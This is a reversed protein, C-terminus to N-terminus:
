KKGKFWELVAKFCKYASDYTCELGPGHGGATDGAFFLGDIDESINSPKFRGTLGVRKSTGLVMNGSGQLEWEKFEKLRPFLENMEEILERINEKTAKRDKIEEPTSVLGYFMYHKGPPSVDKVLASPVSLYRPRKGPQFVIAGWCRPNWPFDELLEERFSYFTGLAISQKNKLNHIKAVFKESFNEESIYSFIYQIPFTIIISKAKLEYEVNNGTEDKYHAKIGKIHKDEILIENVRHGHIIEGGNEKCIVALIESLSQIGGKKPYTIPRKSSFLRSFSRVFEGASGLEPLITIMGNIATLLPYFQDTPSFQKIFEIVSVDDLSNADEDTANRLYDLLKILENNPAWNDNAEKFGENSFDDIEITIKKEVDYFALLPKYDILDLTFGLEREIKKLTGLDYYAIGHVGTDIKYEKRVTLSAARGGLYERKELLLVNLGKKSLLAACATGAAGGGVIVIDYSDKQPKNKRSNIEEM